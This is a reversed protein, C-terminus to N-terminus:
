PYSVPYNAPFLYSRYTNFLRSLDLPSDLEPIVLQEYQKALLRLRELLQSVSLPSGSIRRVGSEGGVIAEFVTRSVDQAHLLELDGDVNIEPEERCSLQHCFTSVVSNYFPKGGEGFVHPLVLVICRAGAREAWSELIRGARLKSRGYPTDRNVHTSSSVSPRGPDRGTSSNLSANPLLCTRM